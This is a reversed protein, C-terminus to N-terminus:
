SNLNLFNSRKFVYQTIRQKPQKSKQCNTNLFKRQKSVYQPIKLEFKSFLNFLLSLAISSLFLALYQSYLKLLLPETSKIYDQVTKKGGTRGVTQEVVWCGM